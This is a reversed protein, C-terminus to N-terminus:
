GVEGVPWPRIETDGGADRPEYLHARGQARHAAWRRAEREALADAESAQGHGPGTHRAAFDAVQPTVLRVPDMQRHAGGCSCFMAVRVAQEPDTHVAPDYFEADSPDIM